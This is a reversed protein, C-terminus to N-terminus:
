LPFTREGSAARGAAMDERRHGGPGQTEGQLFPGRSPCAQEPVIHIGLWSSCSNWLCQPSGIDWADRQLGGPQVCRLREWWQPNALIFCGGSPGSMAVAVRLRGELTNKGRTGREKGPRHVLRVKKASASLGSSTERGETRANREQARHATGRFGGRVVGRLGGFARIM